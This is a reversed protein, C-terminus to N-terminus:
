PIGATQEVVSGGEMTVVADGIMSAEEPAHTVYVMPIGLQDRVRRLAEVVLRRRALDVAALPEDLVLVSPSAALARALAVRQREGGSLSAVSRGLLGDINLLDFVLDLGPAPERRGYDINQRVSLHPFLLTDQPVYGVRRARSPLSIGAKADFFVHEGVAVRGETPTRLGAIVELLTTKGSGSPGFLVLARATLRMDVDLHFRGQTLRVQLHWPVM